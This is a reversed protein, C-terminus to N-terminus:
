CRSPAGFSHRRRPGSAIWTEIAHLADADGAAAVGATAGIDQVSATNLDVRTLLDSPMDNDIVWESYVVWAGGFDILFAGFDVSEVGARMVQMEAVLRCLQWAMRPEREDDAGAVVEPAMTIQERNVSWQHGDPLPEVRIEFPEVEVDAANVAAMAWFRIRQEVDTDTM